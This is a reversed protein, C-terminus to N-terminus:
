DPVRSGLVTLRSQKLAKQRRRQLFNERTVHGRMSKLSESDLRSGTSTILTLELPM